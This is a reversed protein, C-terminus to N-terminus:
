GVFYGHVCSPIYVASAFAYILKAVQLAIQIDVREVPKVAKKKIRTEKKAGSLTAERSKL